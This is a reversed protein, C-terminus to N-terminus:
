IILKYIGIIHYIPDCEGYKLKSKANMFGYKSILTAYPCFTFDTPIDKMCCSTRDENLQFYENFYQIPVYYTLNEETIIITEM